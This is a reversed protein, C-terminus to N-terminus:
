GVTREGLLQLLHDTDDITRLYAVGRREFPLTRIEGGTAILLKDYPLERGDSLAVSQNKVDINTARVGTLWEINQEGYWTEKKLFVRERPIKGKVYHPLLVRSYVPHQEESVIAIEAAADRKRLEEAASTGAIGGGLILYRM